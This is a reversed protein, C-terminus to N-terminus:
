RPRSGVGPLGYSDGSGAAAVITLVSNRYINGMQHLQMQFAKQDRRDICYRDIWLYRFGLEKTVVIADEITCPLNSPLVEIFDDVVANKAQPGWVYSLTLYTHGSSPIIRRTECDILRLNDVITRPSPQAEDCGHHDQCFNLWGSIISFNILNPQLRRVFDLGQAESSVLFPPPAIASDGFPDLWSLKILSVPQYTNEFANPTWFISAGLESLPRGDAKAIFVLLRCLPCSGQILSWDSLNPLREYTGRRFSPTNTIPHFITDLNLRLCRPCLRSDSKLNWSPGDNGRDAHATVSHSASM